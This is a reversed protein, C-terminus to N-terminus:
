KPARCFGQSTHQLDNALALLCSQGANTKISVTGKEAGAVMPMFAVNFSMSSGAALKTPVTLGSLSFGAGAIEAGLIKLEGTGTNSVKITQTADTKVTVNGFSAAPPTVTMARTGGGGSDGVLGCGTLTLGAALIAFPIALGLVLHQMGAASLVRRFM